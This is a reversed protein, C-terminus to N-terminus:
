TLYTSNAESYFQLFHPVSSSASYNLTVYSTLPLTLLRGAELVWAKLLQMGGPVAHLVAHSLSGSHDLGSALYKGSSVAGCGHVQLSTM